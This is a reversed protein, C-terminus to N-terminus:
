TSAMAVDAGPLIDFGPVHCAYCANLARPYTPSAFTHNQEVPNGAGDDSGFVPFRGSGPWNFLQSEDGAWAYIGRGRYIVIPATTAGASHVAHLMEKMGFNQ